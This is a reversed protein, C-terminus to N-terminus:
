THIDTSLALKLDEGLIDFKMERLSEILTIWNVPQRAEGRLWRSLVDRCAQIVSTHDLSVIGLIHEEFHLALALKEWNAATKDIVEVIKGGHSELRQLQYLKPRNAVAYYSFFISNM